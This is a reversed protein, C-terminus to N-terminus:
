SITRALLRVDGFQRETTFMSYVSKMVLLRSIRWGDGCNFVGTRSIGAVDTHYRDRDKNVGSQHRVRM